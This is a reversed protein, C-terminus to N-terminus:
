RYSKKREMGQQLIIKHVEKRRREEFAAKEKFLEHVRPNVRWHSPGARTKQQEAVWGLSSLQEFLPRIEKDTLHKLVSGSRQIDRNSVTDKKHALIYSAVAQLHKQDELGHLTDAYFAFAHKLLFNHLFDCVNKVTKEAILVPIDDEEIHEICHFLLCLRALIGDYKGIHTALKNYVFEIRELELHKETAKRFAAQAAPDFRLTEELSLKHLEHVLNAYDNFEAETDIDEGVNRSSLLIPLFRQLLGDDISRAFVDKIADPQIGGLINVSLNPIWIGGTEENKKRNITYGGGNYSQLWVSRDHGKGGGGYKEMAGFFGVLEDQFMCVGWPSGALISQAAEVTTDHMMVRRLPPPPGDRNEKPTADYRRKEAQWNQFVEKDLEALPKIALSLIPSKKSSPPGILATWLRSSELWGKSNQNVQLKIQDPLATACVSLAAMALGTPDCGMLRAHAFAFNEIIGPMVGSPLPPLPFRGFLDFPETGIPESSTEEEAAAPAVPGSFEEIAIVNDNYIAPNNENDIYILDNTM